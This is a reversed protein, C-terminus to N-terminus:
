SARMVMPFAVSRPRAVGYTYLLSTNTQEKAAVTGVYCSSTKGTGPDLGWDDYSNVNNIGVINVAAVGDDGPILSGKQWSMLVRGPDVGRGEDLGRIFEGRLDPLRLSPLVKALKPFQEASFVAGNCKLFTIGYKSPPLEALPSPFPTGVPIAIDIIDLILKTAEDVTQYQSHPDAAALHAAMAKDTYAKVEIVKDDVYKRTALVVSPDIKLSVAETSSVILIMRIVIAGGSGEQLQPKYSSGCNSYAILTGAKDFLGIERIWFGGDTEPIVQEVIIQNPNLPDISLSNIAARRKEGLLDTMAPDPTPEPASVGGGDGVAIHTMELKTGLAAANALKGAGLNTLIAFYKAM